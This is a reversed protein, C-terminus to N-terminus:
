SRGIRFAIVSAIDHLIAGEAFLIWLTALNKVNGKEAPSGVRKHYIPARRL